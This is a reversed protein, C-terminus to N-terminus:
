SFPVFLFSNQNRKRKARIDQLHSVDCLEYDAEWIRSFTKLIIPQFLISVQNNGIHHMMTLICDNVYESNENFNELLLGYRQM